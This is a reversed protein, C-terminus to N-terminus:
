VHGVERRGWINPYRARPPRDRTAPQGRRTSWPARWRRAAFSNEPARLLPPPRLRRCKAAAISSATRQRIDARSATKRAARPGNPLAPHFWYGYDAQRTEGWRFDGRNDM